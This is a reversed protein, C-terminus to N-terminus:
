KYYQGLFELYEDVNKEQYFIPYNSISLEFVKYDDPEIGGFIYDNLFMAKHYDQAKELNDFKEVTIMAEERNLMINKVTLQLMRFNNKNFDGLRVKLPNVRVNKSNCIIVIYHPEDENFSYPYEKEPMTDAKPRASEINLGLNYMDNAKILVDMALPRISSEPYKQVLRYLAYAMSDVVDTYGIAVADLFEFRPMLLTDNAYLEKARKVNMKVRQYQGNKYADYTKAYLQEAEAGQEAAKVFHEPDIIIKAQNSEPYKTIVSNKYREAEASNNLRNHMRYLYFWASVENENDPYRRCLESYAEISSPYDHLDSYYIFGINNLAESIKKNAEDKQEQTFPIQRLYYNRDLETYQTTDAPTKQPHKKLYEEREEDSLMAIEEDSLVEEEEQVMMSQKNSIFWFDELIRNGWKNRFENAGRTRAAQNYFYWSGDSSTPITPENNNNGGNMAIQEELLRQEELRKQEEKYEEIINDIVAYLQITDMESLRLLSDQTEYETLNSVLDTLMVSLNLLSDYHPYSRDMTMVATDYYAQSLIYDSNGFLIDAAELSSKVKQINNNTSSAVSRRLYKVGEEENGESLSVDAMAYYIRDKFDHNKTDKLMSRLMKMVVATDNSDYCKALKMKAEFTMEYAPHKKIVNKFQESAKDKNGQNQYIQGLIFMARTKYYKDKSTLLASRLYKAAEDEKGLAIYYDAFVLDINTRAYRSMEEEKDNAVLLSQLLSEAKEFQKTAIYTKALWLTATFRDKSDRYQTSAYEFTRRAPVYDQKYFNAKAMDIFADDIWRVYEKNNFRMSHRQICIADKEIARDMYQNLALADEKTGYNFVPLTTTYDDKVANRLAKEGEQISQNGNWWVNYHATMNHWVRRNWKNKKTSCSVLLLASVLLATIVFIRNTKKM